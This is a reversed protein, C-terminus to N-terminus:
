TTWFSAAPVVLRRHRLARRQKIWCSLYANYSVGRPLHPHINEFLALRHDNAGVWYLDKTVNVSTTCLLIRRKM